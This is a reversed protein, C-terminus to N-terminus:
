GNNFVGQYRIDNNEASGEVESVNFTYGEIIIDKMWAQFDEYTFQKTFDQANMLLSFGIILM